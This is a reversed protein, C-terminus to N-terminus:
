NTGVSLAVGYIGSFGSISKIPRGGAPYKWYGLRYNSGGCCEQSILLKGRYKGLATVPTLWFQGLPKHGPFKTSSVITARSGNIQLRYLKGADPDGLAMYKGDWQMSGPSTLKKHVKILTFRSSGKALEALTVPYYPAVNNTGDVFLNGKDDYACYYYWYFKPITYLTRTGSPFSTYVAVSGAKSELTAANAVALNGTTPDVACEDAYFGPDKLVTPPGLDGRGFILIDANGGNTVFVDGTSDACLGKPALNGFGGVVKGQPYTLVDVWEVDGSIFLSTARKWAPSTGRAMAGSASIPSMSPSPLGGCGVLMLFVACSLACRFSFVFSM